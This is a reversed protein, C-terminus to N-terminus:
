NCLIPHVCTCTNGGSYNPCPIIAPDPNCTWSGPSEGCCPGLDNGCDTPPQGPQGGYPTCTITGNISNSLNAGEQACPVTTKIPNAGLYPQGLANTCDCLYTNITPGGGDPWDCAAVVAFVLMALSGTAIKKFM